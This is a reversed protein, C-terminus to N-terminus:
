KVERKTVYAQKLLPLSDLVMKVQTPSVKQMGKIGRILIILARQNLGSRSLKDVAAAILIISDAIREADEPKTEIPLKVKNLKKTTM